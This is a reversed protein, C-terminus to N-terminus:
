VVFLLVVRYFQFNLTPIPRYFGNELPWDTRFWSMPAGRKAIATVIAQTDKDESVDDPGLATMLGILNIALVLGASILVRRANM